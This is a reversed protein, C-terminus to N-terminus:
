RFKAYFSFYVKMEFSSSTLTLCHSALKISNEKIESIHHSPLAPSVNILIGIYTVFFLVIFPCLLSIFQSNKKNVVVFSVVSALFLLVKGSCLISLLMSPSTNNSVIHLLGQLLDTHTVILNTLTQNEESM